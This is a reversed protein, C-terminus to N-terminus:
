RATVTTAFTLFKHLLFSGFTPVAIAIGHAIAERYHSVGLFPLVYDALAISVGWVVPLFALNVIVFWSVQQEMPKDADPFVLWRNLGFATAMGLGYAIVIAVSFSFAQSLLIRATWQAVAATTGVALFRLFQPALFQTRLWTLANM